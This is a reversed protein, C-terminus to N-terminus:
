KVVQVKSVNNQQFVVQLLKRAGNVSYNIQTFIGTSFSRVIDTGQSRQVSPNVANETNIAVEHGSYTDRGSQVVSQEATEHLAISAGLNGLEGSAGKAIANIDGVDVVGNGPDALPVGQDDVVTSISVNPADLSTVSSLQDFYAQATGSVEGEKDTKNLSVLGNEGSKAEYYGELGENYLALMQDSGDGSISLSDGNIDIYKIPNNAGYQYPTFDLYKEAFRDQNFFRGLTPDYNRAGYDYWGM